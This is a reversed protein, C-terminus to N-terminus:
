NCYVEVLKEKDKVGERQLAVKRKQSRNNLVRSIRNGYTSLFIGILYESEQNTFCTPNCIMCTDTQFSIGRSIQYDLYIVGIYVVGHDVDIVKWGYLNDGAPPKTYEVKFRSPRSKLDSAISVVLKSYDKTVGMAKLLKKIM